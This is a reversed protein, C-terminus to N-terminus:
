IFRLMANISSWAKEHFVQSQRIYWWCYYCWLWRMMDMWDLRKWIILQFSKQFTEYHHLPVINITSDKAKFKYIEVGNVFTVDWKTMDTTSELVQRIKYYLRDCKIIVSVSQLLLRDCKAIFNSQRVKCYQIHWFLRRVQIIVIQLLIIMYIRIRVNFILISWIEM